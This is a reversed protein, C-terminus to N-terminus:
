GSSRSRHQIMVNASVIVTELTRVGSVMAGLEVTLYHIQRDSNKVITRRSSLTLKLDPDHKM